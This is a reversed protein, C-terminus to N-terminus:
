QGMKDAASGATAEPPSSPLRATLAGVRGVRGAAGLGPGPGEGKRLDGPGMDGGDEEGRGAERPFRVGAAARSSERPMPEHSEGPALPAVEARTGGAGGRGAEGPSADACTPPSGALVSLRTPVCEIPRRWRKTAHGQAGRELSVLALGQHYKTEKQEQRLLWFTVARDRRM